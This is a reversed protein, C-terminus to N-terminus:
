FLAFSIVKTYWIGLLFFLKRLAQSKHVISIIALSKLGCLFSCVHCLIKFGEANRRLNTFEEMLLADVFRRGDLGLGDRRQELAAVDQGLGLSARALGKGEEQRRQLLDLRIDVGFLDQDHRRCPFQGTLNGVDGIRQCRFQADVDEAEDAALGDLILQLFQVAMWVDDDACWAPEEVVAAAMGEVEAADAPDDDVFRVLHELGAEQFVDIGEDAQRRFPPLEEEERGGDRILDFAQGLLVHLARQDQIDEFALGDGQFVDFLADVHHCFFLFQRLEALHQGVHVGVQGDDEAVGLFPSGEQCAFEDGLAEVDAFEVAVHGLAATVLDQAVKGFGLRLDQDGRVDGGAADIDFANGVDEVEIDGVVDVVVDVADAARAPGATFAQGDHEGRCGIFVPDAADFVVDVRRDGFIGQGTLHLDLGAATRRFLFLGVLVLQRGAGVLRGLFFAMFLAMLASVVAPAALSTKSM